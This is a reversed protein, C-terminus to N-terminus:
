GDTLHDPGFAHPLLESVTTELVKSLDANASIVRIDAGAVDAAEKLLQRCRGCPTVPDGPVLTGGEGRKGGVVAIEVVQFDNEAVARALAAAEACLSLGYSANEMNAGPHIRGSRTRVAAGVAFGSYPAYADAAAARAAALLDDDGM